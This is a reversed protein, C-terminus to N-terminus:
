RPHLVIEPVPKRKIVHVLIATTTILMKRGYQEGGEVMVERNNLGPITM